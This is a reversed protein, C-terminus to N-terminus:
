AARPCGEGDSDADDPREKGLTWDGDCGFLGQAILLALPLTPGLKLM